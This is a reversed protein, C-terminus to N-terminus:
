WLLILCTLAAGCNFILKYLSCSTLPSPLAPQSCLVDHLMVGFTELMTVLDRFAKVCLSTSSALMSGWDFLASGLQLHACSAQTRRIRTGCLGVKSNELLQHIM